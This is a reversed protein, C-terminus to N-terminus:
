RAPKTRHLLPPLAWRRWRHSCKVSAHHKAMRQVGLALVVTLVAPLGEPVAAVALSVGLLLVRMVDASSQIDSMVFITGVVVVTIAIVAIGLMRGLRGVELELPTPKAETAQLMRAIAGMETAMATATVVAQGTGQAVSTGKFVMNVPDALAVPQGLTTADKSVAASEGTLSADQVRLAAADVLRADAGVADVEGLVLEASPVRQLQGDRMVASSVATMKALAAVANQSRVEQVFGLVGNLV